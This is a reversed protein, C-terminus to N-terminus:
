IIKEVKKKRKIPFNSFTLLRLRAWVPTRLKRKQTAVAQSQTGDADFGGPPPSTTSPASTLGGKARRASRSSTVRPYHKNTYWVRKSMKKKKKQLLFFLLCIYVCLFWIFWLISLFLKYKMFHKSRQISTFGFSHNM